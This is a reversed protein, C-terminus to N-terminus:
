FKHLLPNKKRSFIESSEWTLFYQCSSCPYLELYIVIVKRLRLLKTAKFM